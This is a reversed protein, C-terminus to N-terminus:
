PLRLLKLLRRPVIPLGGHMVPLPMRLETGEVNIVIERVKPATAKKRRMM